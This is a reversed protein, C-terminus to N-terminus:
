NRSAGGRELILIKRWPDKKLAADVYALACFGSGVVIDDFEGHDIIREWTGDDVFYHKATAFAPTPAQPGPTPFGALSSPNNPAVTVPLWPVKGTRFHFSSISKNPIQLYDEQRHQRDAPLQAQMTM